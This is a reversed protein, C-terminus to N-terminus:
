HGPGRRKRVPPPASRVGRRPPEDLAVLSAPTDGWNGAVFDDAPKQPASAVRPQTIPATRAGITGIRGQDAAAVGADGRGAAPPEFVLPVAMM